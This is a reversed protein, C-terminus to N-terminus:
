ANKKGGTGTSQKRGAAEQSLLELSEQLHTNEVVGDTRERQLQEVNKQSAKLTKAGTELFQLSKLTDKLSRTHGRLCATM